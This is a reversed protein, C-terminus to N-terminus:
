LAVRRRDPEVELDAMAVNRVHVTHAWETNKRTWLGVVTVPIWTLNFLLFLPYRLWAKWAIDEYGYAILPFCIGLAVLAAWVPAPIWGALWPSLWASGLTAQAISLLLNAGTALIIVPQWLYLLHDALVWREHWTRRPGVMRRVLGGSYTFATTWHGRLWRTRQPVTQGYTLPKEDYVRSEPTWTVRRGALLLRSTYELDETLSGAEWPVQRLLATSLCFGTGGLAGSLALGARAWQWFRNMYWYAGAYSTSIWSDWPNKTDLYAQIAEEGDGLARAMVTLFNPDVMNDADFVCVGDYADLDARRHIAWNLAYGKGRLATDTREWVQAGHSRAVRATDDSCNDAIVVVDFLHRPYDIALVNQVHAGVVAAEDHACALLLFRPPTEVRGTRSAFPRLGRVAVAIQYAAACILLCQTFTALVSLAMQM